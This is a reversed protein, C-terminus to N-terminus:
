ERIESDDKKGLIPQSYDGPVNVIQAIAVTLLSPLRIASSTQRDYILWVKGVAADAREKNMLEWFAKKKRKRAEARASKSLEQSDAWGISDSVRSYEEEATENDM